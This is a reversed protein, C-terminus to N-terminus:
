KEAKIFVSRISRIPIPFVNGMRGLAVQVLRESSLDTSDNLPNKKVDITLESDFVSAEFELGVDEDLFSFKQDPTKGNANLRKGLNAVAADCQLLQVGEVKESIKYLGKLTNQNLRSEYVSLFDDGCEYNQPSANAHGENLRNVIVAENCDTCSSFPDKSEKHPSVAPLITLAAGNLSVAYGLESTASYAYTGASEGSQRSFQLAALSTTDGNVLGSGIAYTMSPDPDGINKAPISAAVTLTPQERYLVYHLGDGVSSAGIADAYQRHYRYSGVPLASLGSIAGITTTAMSGTYFLVSSASGVTGHNVVNGGTTIGRATAVGAALVLSSGTTTLNAGTNVTLNGATLVKLSSDSTFTGGIEIDGTTASGLTINSFGSKFYRTALAGSFWSPSLNITGAGSGIGMTVGSQSSSITLAGGSTVSLQNAGFGTFPTRSVLFNIDGSTSTIVLNSAGRSIGGKLDNFTIAGTTTTIRNTGAGGMVIGGNWTNPVAAGSTGTLTINGTSTLFTAGGLDVGIIYPSSSASTALDTGTISISGAGGTTTDVGTSIIAPSDIRVGIPFTGDNLTAGTGKIYVNGGNTAINTAGVIYVGALGKAITDTTSYASVEQAATVYPDAGGGIVLDGGNTKITAGLIHVGGAGSDNFAHSNLIVNLKGATSIIRAGNNIQIGRDAMLKLTADGGGTKQINATATLQIEGNTGAATQLTVNSGGSLTSSITSSYAADISITVPDILWNGNAGPDIAAGSIDLGHGSTEVQGGSGGQAGGRAVISGHVATVSDAHSTDSWLVATGGKGSQTASVDIRAGQELTTHIAQRYGGSGQWGGGVLVDGGGTAGIANTQSNTSLTIDDGELVIRGGKSTLSNAQILGSQNVVSRTLADAAQATLVVVGDDAQIVGRNTVQANFAGKDITYNILKDGSFNLSVQDAAGLLTTGQPTLITGTNEVRPAMFAVYGGSATQITGANSVTGTSGENIFRTNGALFNSDSLNLSSAVLGGVNVQSGAGFVVGLPNLLYVQGNANLHGFIYSPDGGSVRNLAVSASNPQNFTVTSNSGINFTDWNTVLKQTAQHITLSNGSQVMTATGSAIQGNTPLATSAVTQAQSLQPSSLCGLVVLAALLAGCRGRKGRGRALECAAVFAQQEESWILRYIFNM